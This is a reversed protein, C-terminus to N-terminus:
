ETARRCARRHRAPLGRRQRGREVATKSMTPLRFSEMYYRAYSDFAQQVALRMASGSLKPNVRRLHRQVM